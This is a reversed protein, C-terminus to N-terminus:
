GGGGRRGRDSRNGEDDRPTGGDRSGRGTPSNEGPNQKPSSGIKPLFPTQTKSRYRVRTYEPSRRLADKVRTETWGGKLMRQTYFSMGASDPERRLVEHYAATIQRPIVEQRYESSRRFEQRLRDESWGRDEVIGVYNWLGESDPERGLM